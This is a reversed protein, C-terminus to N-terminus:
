RSTRPKEPKAEHAYGGTWLALGIAVWGLSFLVGFGVHVLRAEFIAGSDTFHYAWGFSGVALVFAGLVRLTKTRVLAVGVLLLGSFLTPTWVDLVVLSRGSLADHPYLTPVAIDALSRVIGLASGILGVLIGTHALRTARGACRAWLTALGVIFLAPVIGALLHAIANFYLPASDQHIYGWLAFLVGAMMTWFGGSRLLLDPSAIPNGELKRTNPRM